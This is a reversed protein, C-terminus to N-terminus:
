NRTYLTKDNPDYFIKNLSIGYSYIDRTLMNLYADISYQKAMISKRKELRTKMVNHNYDKYFYLKLFARIFRSEKYFTFESFDELADLFENIYEYGNCVFLGNEFRNNLVNRNVGQVHSFMDLLDHVTISYAHVLNAFKIYEELGEKAFSDLFDKKTWTAMATNARIVEEITYGEEIKYFIPKKLEKCALFRHQGDIIEFNENVIIDIHLQQEDISRMLKSLNKKDIFRNTDLFKFKDYDTTVYTQNVIKDAM